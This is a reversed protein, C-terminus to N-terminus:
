LEKMMSVVDITMGNPKSIMESHFVNYGISSYLQINRPVTVRVKCQISTLEKKKAYCELSQLLETAIGQGQKTPIVALRYFYLNDEKVQFRVIGVPKHEEFAIFAQEGKELAVSVFQITEELASSPPKENRYVSFAQIMVDHILAAESITALKIFM